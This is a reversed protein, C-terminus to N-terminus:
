MRASTDRRVFDVVLLNRHLADLGYSQPQVKVAFVGPPNPFSEILPGTRHYIAVLRDGYHIKPADTVAELLGGAELDRYHFTLQLRAHLLAGSPMEELRGEEVVNVQCPLRIITELRASHSGRPTADPIRVAEHFEPDYGPTPPGAQTAATDLLALEAIQPWILRGRYGM